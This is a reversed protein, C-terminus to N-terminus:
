GISALVIAQPRTIPAAASAAVAADTATRRACGGFRRRQRQRERENAGIGDILEREESRRGDEAGSGEGEFDHCAKSQEIDHPQDSKDAGALDSPEDAWEPTILDNRSRKRAEQDSFREITTKQRCIMLLHSM